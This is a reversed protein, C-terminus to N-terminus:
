EKLLDLAATLDAPLTGEVHRLLAAELPVRALAESLARAAKSAAHLARATNRAHSSMRERGHLGAAALDIAETLSNLQHQM